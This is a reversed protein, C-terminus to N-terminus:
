DKSERIFASELRKIHNNKSSKIFKISENSTTIDIKTLNYNSLYKNDISLIACKNKINKIEIKSEGPLILASEINPYKVNTIPAIQKLQLINLDPWVIAGGLSKNIATSGISTSLCIGGGRITELKQNNINVDLILTDTQNRITVENLALLPSDDNVSVQLPYFEEVYYHTSNIFDDLTKYNTLFGLTGRNIAVIPIKIIKKGLIKIANLVTGDGGLTIVFDPNNEDRIFSADKLKQEALLEESKDRCFLTYKM